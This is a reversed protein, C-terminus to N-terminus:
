WYFRKPVILTERAKEIAECLNDIDFESNFISFSIRIASDIREEPLNLATLVHSKANGTCASSSSVFIDNESLFNVLVESKIGLVSINLIYPSSDFPSNIVIDHMRFFRKRAYSNLRRVYEYNKRIDLLELAAKFGSILAVPETGPRIKNQQKGGFFIPHLNIRKSVYLGGIGKPGHVKHASVSLLDIGLRKIDMFFKGFSQVADVHFIANPCKKNRVEAIKEIPLVIGTENNVHMVSIFDTDSSILNEIKENSIEFNGDPILYKVKVGSNELHKVCNYVSAHEIASSVIVKLNKINTSGFIVLNNSETGGSTFYFNGGPNDLFRLIYSRTERIIKESKIGLKHLSSANGYFEEMAKGVASIVNKLPKTTSANDLFIRELISLRWLKM